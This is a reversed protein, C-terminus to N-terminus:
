TRGMIKQLRFFDVGLYHLVAATCYRRATAKAFRPHEKKLFARFDRAQRAGERRNENFIWAINYHTNILRCLRQDVYSALEGSFHEGAAWALVAETMRRHHSIRRVYNRYDVSQASNGILYRYLDLDLFCVTQCHSTAKLIFEYDVYFIGEQVCVGWKRLLETRIMVTHLNYYDCYVDSAFNLFPSPQELPTGAPLLEPKEEGTVMHVTRRQDVVMDTELSELKELLTAMADPNVWDDGDVVRFYKGTAEALGRNITSGHGGNEKRILRFIAPYQEQFKEAIAATGDKSGDDIILVELAGAFDERALSSLCKELYQEVNYAAISVTLLKM